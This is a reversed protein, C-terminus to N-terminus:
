VRRFDDILSTSFDAQNRSLDVIRRWCMAATREAQINFRCFDRFPGYKIHQRVEQPLKGFLNGITAAAWAVSRSVPASRWRSHQLVSSAWGGVGGAAQAVFAQVRLRLSGLRLIAGRIYLSHMEEDKWIWVLAHHIIERVDDAIPMRSLRETMLSERYGISVIEERELAILFLRILENRSDGAYRQRLRLLEQEFELEVSGM